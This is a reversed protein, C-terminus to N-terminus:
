NLFNSICSMGLFLDRVNFPCRVEMDSSSAKQDARLSIALLCVLDMESNTSIISSVLPSAPSDLVMRM